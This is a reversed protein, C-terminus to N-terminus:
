EITRGGIAGETFAKAENGYCEAPEPPHEIEPTDVGILRITEGDLPRNDPTKLDSGASVILTDGDIVVRALVMDPIMGADVRPGSDPPPTTDDDDFTTRDGCAFLLAPLLIWRMSRPVYTARPVHSLPSGGSVACSSRTTAQAMTIRGFASRPTARRAISRSRPRMRRRSRWTSASRGRSSPTSCRADWARGATHRISRSSTFSSSM